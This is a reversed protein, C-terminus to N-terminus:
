QKKSGDTFAVGILYGRIGQTCHVVQAPLWPCSNDESFERVYLPSRVELKRRCWFACGGNSVNQMTVAMVSSAKSPDGTVELPIGEIFRNAHRKGSYHDQKGTAAAASVMRQIAGEETQAKAVRCKQM